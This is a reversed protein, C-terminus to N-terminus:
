TQSLTGAYTCQLYVPPKGGHLGAQYADAIRPSNSEGFREDLFGAESLLDLNAHPLASKDDHGRGPGAGTPGLRRLLHPLPALIPEEFCRRGRAEIILLPLPLARPLGQM